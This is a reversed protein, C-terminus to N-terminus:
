FLKQQVPMDDPKDPHVIGVSALQSIRNTAYRYRRQLTNDRQNDYEHTCAKCENRYRQTKDPHLGSKQYETLPKVHGCRKCQKTDDLM